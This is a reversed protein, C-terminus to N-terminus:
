LRSFWSTKPQRPPRVSPSVVLYKKLEPGFQPIEDQLIVHSAGSPPEDWVLVGTTVSQFYSRSTKTRTYHAIAEVWVDKDGQLKSTLRKPMHKSQQCQYKSSNSPMNSTSRSQHDWYERKTLPNNPKASFGNSNHHTGRQSVCLTFNLFSIGLMCFYNSMTSDFSPFVNALLDRCSENQNMGRLSLGTSPVHQHSRRAAQLTVKQPIISDKRSISGRVFSRCPWTYTSSTKLDSYLRTRHIAVLYYYSCLIRVIALWNVIWASSGKRRWTTLWRSQKSKIPLQEEVSIYLALQPYSSVMNAYVVHSAGSPPEDWACTGTRVSQFYSRWKGTSVCNVKREVWVDEQLPSDTPSHKSTSCPAQKLEYNITM